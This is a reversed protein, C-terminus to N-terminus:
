APPEHYGVLKKYGELTNFVIPCLWARRCVSSMRAGPSRGPATLYPFERCARPRADYIRCLNQELFICADQRQRLMTRRDEPDTETYERLVQESSAGLFAAIAAVEAASVNVRTQRCCNACLKCDIQRQVEAALWRFRGDRYHHAKLYRRFRLNELASAEALRRIEVLDTLV